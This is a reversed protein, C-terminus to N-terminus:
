LSTRGTKVGTQCIQFLLNSSCTTEALMETCKKVRSIRRHGNRCKKYNLASNEANV